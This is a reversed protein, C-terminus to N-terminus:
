KPAPLNTTFTQTLFVFCSQIKDRQSQRRGLLIPFNSGYFQKTQPNFCPPDLFSTPPIQFLKISVETYCKFLSFSFVSCEVYVPKHRLPSESALSILLESPLCAKLWNIWPEAWHHNYPGLTKEAEESKEGRCKALWVVAELVLWPYTNWTWM